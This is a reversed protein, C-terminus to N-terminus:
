RLPSQGFVEGGIVGIRWKTQQTLLLEVAL